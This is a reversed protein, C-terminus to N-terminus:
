WGTDIDEVVESVLLAGGPGGGGADGAGETVVGHVDLEGPLGVGGGGVYQAVDPCCGSPEVGVLM